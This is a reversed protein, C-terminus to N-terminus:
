RYNVAQQFPFGKLQTSPFITSVPRIIVDSFSRTNTYSKNRTSM